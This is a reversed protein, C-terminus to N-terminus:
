LQETFNVSYLERQLTQAGNLNLTSPWQKLQEGHSHARAPLGAPFFHMRGSAQIAGLHVGGLGAATM